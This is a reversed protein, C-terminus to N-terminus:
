PILFADIEILYIVNQDPNTFVDAYPNFDDSEDEPLITSAAVVGAPYTSLMM